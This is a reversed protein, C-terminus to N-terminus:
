YVDIRAIEYAAAFRVKEHQNNRPRDIRLSGLRRAPVDEIPILYVTGLEPAFV